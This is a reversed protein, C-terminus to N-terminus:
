LYAWARRVYNVGSAVTALIAAYNLVDRLAIPWPYRAQDIDPWWRLVALVWAIALCQLLMKLKGLQDAGFSVGREELYGRLGTVIFERAVVITVMWPELGATPEDLLFIFAGCVLVKDVLPDYARGFSTVLGQGRALYGDLWDTVAAIAFVVLAALWFRMGITGFLVFSLVLRATTLQNPLSGLLSPKPSTSDTM